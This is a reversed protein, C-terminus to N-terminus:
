VGNGIIMFKNDPIQPALSRHYHSKVMIKDINNLKDTDYDVGAFVDHLDVLFKRAKVRGALNPVRWQILINFSDRPNFYYWPLYTVGDVTSKTVPPDGYVTVKYGKEVWRRSLEIVATESGGIGKSLSNGDWKEFHPGGFNAFYCIEDRGWIRPEAFANRLRMAFPQASIADPLQELLPVIVSSKGINDLYMALKDFHGCADNLSDKDELFAVMAANDKTPAEDYLLLAAELAKKTNKHHMYQLKMALESYMLKM